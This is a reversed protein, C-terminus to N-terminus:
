LQGGSIYSVLKLDTVFLDIVDLCCFCLSFLVGHLSRWKQFM